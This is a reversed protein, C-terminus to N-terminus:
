TATFSLIRELDRWISYERAYLYNLMHTERSQRDAGSRRMSIEFVGPKVQPLENLKDDTTNYSVWTKKGGIVQVSSKLLARGQRFLMLVPFCICMLLAFALDLLRKNRRQMHDDISYRVETTYLSTAQTKSDSGVLASSDESAIKYRVGPGLQAMWRSIEGFELDRAAFILENIRYQAVIRPLQDVSGIHEVAQPASETSIVGALKAKPNLRNLLEMIRESEAGSGVIGVIGGRSSGFLKQLVLAWLSLVFSVVLASLLIVARSSRLSTDLLSYILLIVGTGAIISLVIRFPRRDPRNGAALFVSVFWTITYLPLNVKYFNADFHEEDHFFYRSWLNTVVLISGAILVLDMLPILTSKFFRHLGSLIGRMYIGINLMQRVFFGRPGSYHKAVFIRMANYFTRVYVMSSRRTSEGKYHIISTTPLYYNKYGAKQFRYSLDIDEGYMFFTEDLLGVKDLARKSMFMFAGTLVDVENIEDRDLGGLYYHNIFNSKPFWSNLGTLKFFSAMPSPLGRKSEPLYTGTGDYMKVGVVGADENEDMFAICKRFTDESVVTDPNLLLVYRGKAERLAINNAKSFGVNKDNAILRVDPFQNGVMAVTDDISSNDVVLVESEIDGLAKYVSVLCKELFARVNYSVIIVSLDM